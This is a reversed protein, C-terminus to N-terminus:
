KSDGKKAPAHLEWNEPQDALLAGLDDDVEVSEGALVVDGTAALELDGRPSVNKFKM